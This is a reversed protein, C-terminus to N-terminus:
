FLFKSMFLTEIMQIWLLLFCASPVGTMVICVRLVFFFNGQLRSYRLRGVLTSVDLGCSVSSPLQLNRGFRGLILSLPKSMTGSKQQQKYKFLLPKLPYDMLDDDSPGM